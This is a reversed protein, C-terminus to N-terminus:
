YGRGKVEKHKTFKTNEAMTMLQLPQHRKGHDLNTFWQVGAVRVVNEGEQEIWKSYPVYPTYFHAMNRTFGNGLWIKNEKILPFVDKYTIANQNGIIVFKKEAEMIWALFESFLSFPPNTVIVDASDRLVRVEASRFDGNGELYDWEIDEFNIKSDRNRDRELTLIRGRSRAKSEDFKPSESEFLSLQLNLNAPKSNLAYSTSILKRLGLKVFNQAFYKTFNSWEPDDCPLLLVKDRFVDEDFELYANMEREIDAYQTYFEDNKASKAKGLIENAVGTGEQRPTRLDRRLNLETSAKWVLM